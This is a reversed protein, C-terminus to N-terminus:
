SVVIPPFFATLPVFYIIKRQIEVSKRGFWVGLGSDALASYRGLSRRKDAFNTGVEATLPHSTTLM